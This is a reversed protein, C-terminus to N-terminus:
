ISSSSSSSGEADATTLADCLGDTEATGNLAEEEFGDKAPAEVDDKSVTDTATAFNVADFLHHPSPHDDKEEEDKGM